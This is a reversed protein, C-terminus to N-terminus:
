LLRRSGRRYLGLILMQQAYNQLLGSDKADYFLVAKHFM